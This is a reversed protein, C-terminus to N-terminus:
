TWLSQILIIAMGFLLSVLNLMSRRKWFSMFGVFLFAGGSLAIMVPLIKGFHPLLWYTIGFSAYLFGFSVLTTLVSRKTSSGSGKMIALAAFFEPLIHLTIATFIFVGFVQSIGFSIGTVIGELISHLWLAAATLISMAPKKLTHLIFKSLWWAIFGLCLGVIGYIIGLQQSVEPLIDFLAGGIFIGSALSIIISSYDLKSVTPM